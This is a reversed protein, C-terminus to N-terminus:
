FSSPDEETMKRKNKGFFFKKAGKLPDALGKKRDKKSSVDSQSGMSPSAVPPAMIININPEVKETIGGSSLTFQIYRSEGHMPWHGESDITNESITSCSQLTDHNESKSDEEVNNMPESEVPSVRGFNNSFFTKDHYSDGSPSFSLRFTAETEPDEWYSQNSFDDPVERDLINEVVDNGPDCSQGRRSPSSPNQMSGNEEFHSRQSASKTTSGFSKRGKLLGEDSSAFRKRLYEVSSIPESAKNKEAILKSVPSSLGLGKLDNSAYAEAAKNKEAILKAVPSAMNLSNRIGNLDKATSRLSNRIKEIENQESSTKDDDAEEKPSTVVTRASFNKALDSVSMSRKREEHPTSRVSHPKEDDGYCIKPPQSTDIKTPVKFKRQRKPPTTDEEDVDEHEHKPSPSQKNCVTSQDDFHHRAETFRSSGTPTANATTSGISKLKMNAFLPKSSESVEEVCNKILKWREEIPPGVKKLAAAIDNQFKQDASVSDEMQTNSASEKPKSEASLSANIVSTSGGHIPLSVSRHALPKPKNCKMSSPNTTSLSKRAYLSSPSSSITHVSKSLESKPAPLSMRRIKDDERSYPVASVLSMQDDDDLEEKTSDKEILCELIPIGRKCFFRRGANPVFRYSTSLLASRQKLSFVDDVIQKHMDVQDIFAASSVVSGADRMSSTQGRRLQFERYRDIVNAYAEDGNNEHEKNASEEVDEEQRTDILKTSQYRKLREKVSLSVCSQDDDNINARESGGIGIATQYDKRLNQVSVFTERDSNKDGNNRQRVDVM